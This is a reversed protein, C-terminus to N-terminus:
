KNKRMEYIKKIGNVIGIKSKWKYNNLYSCYDTCIENKLPSLIPVKWNDLSNIIDAIDLLSYKESYCLNIENITLSNSLISDICEFLDEIYIFDMIKNELLEIPSKSIYNTISNSILRQKNEDLGFCGYLRLHYYNHLLENKGILSMHRKSKGYNNLHIFEAGSGFNILKTKNTINSVINYFIGLNFLYTTLDDSDIRKGGIVACHIICDFNNEKLYKETDKFNLLNLESHTPFHLAFNEKDKYYSIINKGIFGSGGTVLIKM